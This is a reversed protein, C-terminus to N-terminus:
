ENNAQHEENPEEPVQPSPHENPNTERAAEEMQLTPQSEYQNDIM